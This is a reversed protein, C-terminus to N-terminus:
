VTKKNKENVLQLFLPFQKRAEPHCYLGCLSDNENTVWACALLVGNEAWTYCHGGEELRHMAGALFEQQSYRIERTDFDLLDKLCDQQINLLGAHTCPFSPQGGQNKIARFGQKIMHRCKVKYLDIVRKWKKLRAAPMGALAAAKKLYGNLRSRLRNVAGHYRNGISLTHAVTYETALMDKYADAGPTLDFVEVREEALMKGLLLFHIIGPSYKAYEAAFSNIGQLHVRGEGRASVNSAIIKDNIKLVTAHLNNQRFLALL